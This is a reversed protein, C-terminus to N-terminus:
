TNFKCCIDYSPLKVNDLKLIYQSFYVDEPNNMFKIYNPM